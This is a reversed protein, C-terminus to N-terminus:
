KLAEVVYIAKKPPKRFPMKSLEDPTIPRYVLTLGDVRVVGDGPIAVVWFAEFTTFAHVVFATPNGLEKAARVAEAKTAYDECRPARWSLQAGDLLRRTDEAARLSAYVGQAENQVTERRAIEAAQERGEQALKRAWRAESAASM